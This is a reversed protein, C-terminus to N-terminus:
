RTVECIIENQSAGPKAIGDRDHCDAIVGALSANVAESQENCDYVTRLDKGCILSAHFAAAIGVIPGGELTNLVGLGIAPCSLEASQRQASCTQNDYRRLLEQAGADGTIVVPAITVTPTSTVTSPAPPPGDACSAISPDCAEYAPRNTNSIPDPM